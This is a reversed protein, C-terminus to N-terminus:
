NVVDEFLKDRSEMSRTSAMLATQRTMRYLDDHQLLYLQFRFVDLTNSRPIQHPSAIEQDDNQRRHRYTGCRKSFRNCHSMNLPWHVPKHHGTGFISSGNGTTLKRLNHLAIFYRHAHGISKHISRKIILRRSVPLV